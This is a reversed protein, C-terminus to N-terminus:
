FGITCSIGHDLNEDIINLGSHLAFGRLADVQNDITHRERQDDTGFSVIMHALLLHTNIFGTLSMWGRALEEIMLAYTAFSMASGGYREPITAGFLGLAKMGEVLEAPYTDDHDYASAVPEVERRVFDRVTALISRQEETLEPM